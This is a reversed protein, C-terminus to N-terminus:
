CPLTETKQLQQFACFIMFSLILIVKISHRTEMQTMAKFTYEVMKSM